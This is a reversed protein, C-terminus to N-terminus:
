TTYQRELTLRNTEDNGCLVVKKASERREVLQWTCFRLIEALSVSGAGGFFEKKGWSKKLGKGELFLVPSFSSFFGEAEAM